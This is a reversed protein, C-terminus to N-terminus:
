GQISQLYYTLSLIRGQVIYDPDNGILGRDLVADAKFFDGWIPMQSNSHAKEGLGTALIQYVKSFPFAGGSRESLKTLDSPPVQFMGAIEGDGKGTEGHCSACRAGFTSKGLVIASDQAQVVNAALLIAAIAFSRQLFM